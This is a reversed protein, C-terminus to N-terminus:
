QVSLNGLTYGNDRLWQLYRVIDVTGTRADPGPERTVSGDANIGSPDYRIFQGTDSYTMGTDTMQRQTGGSGGRVMRDESCGPGNVCYQNDSKDHMVVNSAINTVPNRMTVGADRAQEVMWSLAVLPLANEEDLFGGGIDAHAGVFGMESRTQGVPVIGGVISELPFAGTSGPLRRLTNGRYENLAVAQAVHQFGPVIGLNYRTGSLNTSLVTDWLGLFRFNIMQCRQEQRGDMTTTYRYQGNRTAANIRNAFDRAQAAGRSFGIIDVDMLKTNDTFLEAEANFYAVMREIRDPGTFNAGMDVISTNGWSWHIDEGFQPDTERHRTGVGTVYRRNGDDYLQHFQWVNSLGNGLENLTAEDNSNGTGDFAFLILGDPDIYRLPNYAV